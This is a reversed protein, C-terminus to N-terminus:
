MCWLLDFKCVRQGLFHNKFRLFQWSDSKSVKLCSKRWWLKPIKLPWRWKRWRMWDKVQEMRLLYQIRGVFPHLNASIMIKIMLRFRIRKFKSLPKYFSSRFVPVNTWSWFHTNRYDRFDGYVSHLKCTSWFGWIKTPPCSGVDCSNQRRPWIPGSSKAQRVHWSDVDINSKTWWLLLPRFGRRNGQVIDDWIVEHILSIIDQQCIFSTFHM